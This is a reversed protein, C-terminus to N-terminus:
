GTREHQRVAVALWQIWVMLSLGMIGLGVWLGTMVAQGPDTYGYGFFWEYRPRSFMAGTVIGIVSLGVGLIGLPLVWGGARKWVSLISLILSSTGLWIFLMPPFLYSGLFHWESFFLSTARNGEGNVMFLM